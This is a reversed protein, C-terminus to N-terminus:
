KFEEIKRYTRVHKSTIYREFGYEQLIETVQKWGIELIHTSYDGSWDRKFDSLSIPAELYIYKISPPLNKILNIFDKRKIHEITHSSLFINYNNPLVINWIFDNPIHVNYRTDKCINWERAYHTIEYNDWKMIEPRTPLIKQALGGNWGGLELIYFYPEDVANLFYNVVETNHQSQDPHDKVLQTYFDQHRPYSLDDYENRWREFKEKWKTVKKAIAEYEEKLTKTM